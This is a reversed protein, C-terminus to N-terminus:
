RLNELWLRFGNRTVQSPEEWVLKSGDPSIEGYHSSVREVRGTNADIRFTGPKGRFTSTRRERPITLDLDASAYIYRDDASWRPHGLTGPYPDVTITRAPDGTKMISIRPRGDGLSFIAWRDGSRDPALTEIAPLIGTSSNLAKTMDPSPRRIGSLANIAYAQAPQGASTEVLVVSKSDASWGFGRSIEKANRRPAAFHSVQHVRRDAISMVWINIDASYGGRFFAVYRGDPSVSPLTDEEKTKTLGILRGSGIELQYLTNNGKNVGGRNLAIVLRQGDPLWTFGDILGSDEIIPGASDTDTDSIAPTSLGVPVLFCLLILFLPTLRVSM